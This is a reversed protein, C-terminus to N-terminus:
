HKAFVPVVPNIVVCGREDSRCRNGGLRHVRVEIHICNGAADVPVESCVDARRFSCAPPFHLHKRALKPPVHCRTVKGSGAFRLPDRRQWNGRDFLVPRM